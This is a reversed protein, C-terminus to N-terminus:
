RRVAAQAEDARTGNVVRPRAVPAICSSDLEVSVARQLLSVGVVLRNNNRIRVLIGEAGRFPGREVLVRDGVGLCPWPMIDAGSMVVTRISAIECDDVATWGNGVINVVGPTHVIRLRDELTFKGFLYGSFLPREFSKTRDSWQSNARYTPLFVEYEKGELGQKAVQEHRSRVRIAHWQKVDCETL